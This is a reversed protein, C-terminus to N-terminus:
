EFDPESGHGSLPPPALKFAALFYQASILLYQTFTLISGILLILLIPWIVMTFRGLNGVYTGFEKADAYKPLVYWCIVVFTIAGLLHYTGELAYGLRPRRQQLRGIFMDSNIFRGRRLTNAIQLFVIGVISLSVIEPVGDVPRSFLTRGFVDLNVLIMIGFIWLSGVVALATTPIAVIRSLMTVLSAAKSQTDAM